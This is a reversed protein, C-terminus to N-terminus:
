CTSSTDGCSISFRAAAHIACILLAAPALAYGFATGARLSAFVVRPNQVQGTGGVRVFPTCNEPSGRCLHKAKRWPNQVDGVKAAKNEVIRAGKNQGM